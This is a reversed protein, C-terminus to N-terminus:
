LLRKNNEDNKLPPWKSFTECLITYRLYIMSLVDIRIQVMGKIEKSGNNHLFHKLLDYKSRKNNEDNDLAAMKFIAYHMGLIDIPVGRNQNTDNGQVFSKSPPPPPPYLVETGLGHVIIVHVLDHSVKNIYM